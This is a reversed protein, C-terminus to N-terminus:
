TPTQFCLESLSSAGVRSFVPTDPASSTERSLIDEGSVSLNGEEDEKDEKDEEDEVGPSRRRLHSPEAGKSPEEKWSLLM